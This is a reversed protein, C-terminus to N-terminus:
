PATGPGPGAGDFRRVVGGPIAGGGGFGGTGGGAAAGALDATTGIVVATGAALGSAIEATANTVLGVEVPVRQLTGDAALTRVAYDGDTGQLASAPVTVVDTASAITISVDASMGARADAPADDLTITVPFAVVGSQTESATPSIATVTGQATAGIADISVTAAQGVEIDLLDGEVVDTTVTLTDAAIVIATGAPADFGATVNVETVIGDIPSHLEAAELAAQLTAEDEAAQSAQNRVSYVQLKGQRIGDRDEDDRADALTENAIRLQLDAAARDSSARALERELGATDAKALIQDRAVRDGVAVLVETVPWTRDAASAQDTAGVLYPASGFALGYTTATALTGTAAVDETVDGVTAEATLYETTDAPQAGVAGVGVALAGVGVASLAVLALIKRRM